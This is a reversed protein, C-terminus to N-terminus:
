ASQQKGHLYPRTTNIYCKEIVHVWLDYGFNEATYFIKMLAQEMSIVTDEDKNHRWHEAALCLFHIIELMQKQLPQNKEYMTREHVEILPHRMNWNGDTWDHIAAMLRIAADALEEHLPDGENSYFYQMGEDIETVVLMLKPLLGDHKAGTFGNATEIYRCVAAVNNPNPRTGQELDETMKDLIEQSDKMAKKRSMKAIDNM